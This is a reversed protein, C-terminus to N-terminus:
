MFMVSWHTFNDCLGYKGLAQLCTLKSQCLMSITRDSDGWYPVEKEKPSPYIWELPSMGLGLPNSSLSFTLSVV